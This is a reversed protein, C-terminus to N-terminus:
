QMTIEPRLTPVVSQSLNTQGPTPAIKEGFRSMRRIGRMQQACCQVPLPNIRSILSCDIQVPIEGLIRENDQSHNPGKTLLLLLIHFIAEKVNASIKKLWFM